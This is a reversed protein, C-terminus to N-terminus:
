VGFDEKWKCSLALQLIKGTLPPKVKYGSYNEGKFTETNIVFHQYHTSNAYITYIGETCTGLILFEIGKM